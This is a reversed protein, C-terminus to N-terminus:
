KYGVASLKYDEPVVRAHTLLDCDGVVGYGLSDTREEKLQEM